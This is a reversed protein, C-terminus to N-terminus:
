TNRVYNEVEQKFKSKMIIGIEILPEIHKMKVYRNTYDIQEIYKKNIIAYRSCRIFLESDLDQMIEDCTKYPIELKDNICHVIIKRKKSEIYIIDNICKSYIIGDKRFFVNREKDAVVPFELAKLVCKQVQNKSFPKEIFDFCHLQSYSYLKPDELSTVFIVPTFSYKKVERIEQVFRLGTVDGLQDANLIIDILFLHIHHEMAIQYALSSDSACFIEIDEHLDDIIKCLADMHSKKDEVILIKRKM